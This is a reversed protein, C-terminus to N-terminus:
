ANYLSNVETYQYGAAGGLQWGVNCRDINHCSVLTSGGADTVIAVHDFVGDGDWDYNIIDGIGLSYISGWAQGRGANIVWNQLAENNVWATTGANSSTTGCNSCGGSYTNWSGDTRETGARLCQSVFNACDGGCPNYNCYSDSYSSCHGLAYNKAATYNYSYQTLPQIAGNPAASPTALGKPGGWQVAAWMGSVLDPSIQGLDPEEYADKLLRWGGTGKVVTIAHRTGLGSTIEGRPGRPVYSVYKAPNGQRRRAIAPPVDDPQPIWTVGVTEYLHATATTGAVQLDLLSVTATYGLITGRWRAGLGAFFFRAREKEFALLAANTPDYIQDLLNTDGTTMAQARKAYTAALFGEPTDDQTSDALAILPRPGVLGATAVALGSLGALRLLERRPLRQANM